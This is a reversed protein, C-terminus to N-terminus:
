SFSKKFIEVMEDKHKNANDNTWNDYSYIELLKLSELGWKENHLRFQEKKTSPLWFNYSSNTSNSILALNGFSDLDNKDWRPIPEEPHQPYVHEVSRSQRFQFRDIFKKNNEHKETIGNLKWQKLLLYDLKFFWYRETGVGRDL